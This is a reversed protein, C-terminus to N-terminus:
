AAPPNLPASMPVIESVWAIVQIGPVNLQGGSFSSSFTDHSESHSYSGSISFPGWGVSASGSTASEIHSKDQDSFDASISIDRAVVFATPILPLLGGENGALQGNSIGGSEESDIYWGQMRFLFEHLWPRFIRVVGIKASLSINNADMHSQTSGSSHQASGGVSWLGGGWSAGGGYSSYQSDSSTNLNASTLTLNTFNAAAAPDAWNTPLAYSLFWPDQGLSSAMQNISSVSRQADQIANRVSSNVSSVLAAQAEEVQPAGQNRWTTYTQNVANRLVPENAQWQRQQKVDTLDYNLYATRYASVATVYATLNAQYAAAITSPGTSTTEKGMFDKIKTESNLFSFAEQYITVQAPDVQASTNAGNVINSYVTSVTEASPTYDAQVAPVVDVMRSFTEAANLDGTPNVPTAANAFDQPNLAESKSFQLFTTQKDFAAPQSSGPSFTIADYLRSYLSSLVQQEQAADM